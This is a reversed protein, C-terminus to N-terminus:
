RFTGRSTRFKGLSGYRFEFTYFPDPQGPLPVASRRKVKGKKAGTEVGPTAAQESNAGTASDGTAVDQRPVALTEKVYSLVILVAEQTVIFILVSGFSHSLNVNTRKLAKESISTYNDVGGVLKSEEEDDGDAVMARTSTTKTHSWKSPNQQTANKKAADTDDVTREVIKGYSFNVKISGL